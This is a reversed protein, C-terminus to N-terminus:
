KPQPAVVEFDLINKATAIGVPVGKPTMLSTMNPDPGITFTKGVDLGFAQAIVADKLKTIKCKTIKTLTDGPHLKVQEEISKILETARTM